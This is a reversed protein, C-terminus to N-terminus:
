STKEVTLTGTDLAPCGAVNTTDLRYHGTMEIGVTAMQDGGSFNSIVEVRVSRNNGGITMIAFVNAGAHGRIPTVPVCPLFSVAGALNAGDHCFGDDIDVDEDQTLSLNIIGGANGDTSTAIGRWTGGYNTLRSFSSACYEADSGGGDSTTGGCSSISLLPVLCLLLSPCASKNM